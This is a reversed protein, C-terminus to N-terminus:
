AQQQVEEAKLDHHWRNLDTARWMRRNKVVRVRAPLEGRQEMRFITSRALGTIRTMDAMSYFLKSDFPSNTTNQNDM